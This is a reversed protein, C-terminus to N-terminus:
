KGELAMRSLSYADCINDDQFEVGWKKYVKLLMLNKKAQGKGTVFKKLSTPPIVKYKLKNEFLYIRIFYHLAALEMISQGKSAFSLGELYISETSEKHLLNEITNRISLLREEIQVNPKTVILEQDIIKSKNDINVFGTGTLSLDIGTFIKSSMKM